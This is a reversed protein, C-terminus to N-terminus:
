LELLCLPRGFDGSFKFFAPASHRGIFAPMRCLKRNKTTQWGCFGLFAIPPTPHARFAVEVRWYLM